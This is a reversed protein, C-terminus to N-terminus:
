LAHYGNTREKRFVQDLCEWTRMLAHQLIPLQDQKDGIDNLLRQVLQHSIQGGGVAIPGEIAQTIDKQDNSSDFLSQRQDVKDAGSVQSCEGIFDSRMTIVIYIPEEKQYVATLLLKM